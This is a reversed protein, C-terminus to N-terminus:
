RIFSPLALLLGSTFAVLKELMWPGFFLLAAFSALIKPVFVLTQEHIQTTAQFLSVLLGVALSAVIIPASVLLAVRLSQRGLEMVIDPM